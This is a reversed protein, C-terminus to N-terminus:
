RAIVVEIRPNERDIFKREHRDWIDSDDQYCLGSLSDYVMKLNDQDRRRADPMYWLLEVRVEGKYPQRDGVQDKVEAIMKKKTERALKTLQKRGNYRNFTYMKNASVYPTYIVIKM